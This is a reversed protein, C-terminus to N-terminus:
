RASARPPAQVAARAQALRAILYALYFDEVGVGVLEEAVQQGAASYFRVTPVLRVGERASFEAHSLSQGALDMLRTDDGRVIRFLAQQDPAPDSALPGLYYREVLECYPCDNHSFMVVLPLGAAAAQRAAGQLDRATILEAQASLLSLGLLGGLFGRRWVM